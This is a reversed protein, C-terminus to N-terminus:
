EKDDAPSYGTPTEECTQCIDEVDYEQHCYPCVGFYFLRELHEDAM